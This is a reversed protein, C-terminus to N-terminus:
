RAGSTNDRERPGTPDALGADGRLDPDGECRFPAVPHPQDVDRLDFVPHEDTIRDGLCHAGIAPDSAISRRRVESRDSTTRSSLASVWNSVHAWSAVSSMVEQAATPTSAVLRRGSPTLPSLTTRTAGSDSSAAACSKASRALDTRFSKTYSSGACRATTRRDARPEIPQRQRDLDGGRADTHEVRVLDQRAEVFAQTLKRLRSRLRGSRCRM